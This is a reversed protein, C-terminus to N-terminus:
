ARCCGVPQALPACDLGHSCTWPRQPAEYYRVPESGQRDLLKPCFEFLCLFSAASSQISEKRGSASKLLTDEVPCMKFGSTYRGLRFMDPPPACPLLGSILSDGTWATQRSRSLRRTLGQAVSRCALLLGSTHRRMRCEVRNAVVPTSVSSVRRGNVYAFPHPCQSPQRSHASIWAGAASCMRFHCLIPLAANITEHGELVCVCVRPRAGCSRRGGSDRKADAVDYVQMSRLKHCCLGDCRSRLTAVHL